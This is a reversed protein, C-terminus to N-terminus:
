VLSQGLSSATAVMKVSPTEAGIKKAFDAAGIVAKANVKAKKRSQIHFQVDISEHSREM